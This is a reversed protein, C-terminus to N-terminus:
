QQATEANKITKKLLAKECASKGNENKYWNLYSILDEQIRLNGESDVYSINGSEIRQTVDNVDM